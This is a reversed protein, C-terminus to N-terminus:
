IPCESNQRRPDTLSRNVLSSTADVTKIPIASIEKAGHVHINKCKTVASNQHKRKAIESADALSHGTHSDIVADNIATVSLQDILNLSHLKKESFKVNDSPTNLRKKETIDSKVNEINTVVSTESQKKVEFGKSNTVDSVTGGSSVLISQKADRHTNMPEICALLRKKRELHGITESSTPTENENETSLKRKLTDRSFVTDDCESISDSPLRVNEKAFSIDNNEESKRNWTNVALIDKDSIVDFDLVDSKVPSNVISSTSSTPSRPTRCSSGSQSRSKKKIHPPPSNSQSHRRSIPSCKEHSEVESLKHKPRMKFNHLSDNSKWDFLNEISERRSSRDDSKEKLIPSGLLLRDKNPSDCGDNQVRLPSYSRGRTESYERNRDRQYNFDRLEEFCDDSEQYDDSEFARHRRESFTHPTRQNEYRSHNRTHTDFSSTREEVDSWSSNNSSNTRREWSRDSAVFQGTNDLKEFFSNQCERNAFDVQLKRGNMLRGKLDTVAIQACEVTDYFVLCNGRERDITMNVVPGYRSCQWMLSKESHSEGIGHLWVCNTPMSKGFGLKIRNAGLNEGDLKRMAKVVSSIDSYQIFAYTSTGQKKIDIEIIEGFQDFHSRLDNPTIDKELNGVFLTRTAKPHYEDLEAELPRFDNDEADIGEHPTVEIKSGFFLKDKSVELAKDVDESKKFCVVAFRDIGQGIVKVMTVKGHKKYEHFLGDKLSTDTSRVPLNRVCIALPKSEDKDTVSCDSGPTASSMHQLTHNSGQSLLLNISNTAVSASPTTFTREEIKNEAKHAKEASRIDIFAVTACVAPCQNNNSEENKSRGLIKVSQVKGYRCDNRFTRVFFCAISAICAVM